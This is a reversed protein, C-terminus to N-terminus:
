LETILCIRVAYPCRPWHPICLLVPHMQTIHVGISFVRGSKNQATRHFCHDWLLSFGRELVLILSFSPKCCCSVVLLKIKSYSRHGICSFRYTRTSSTTDTLTEVGFDSWPYPIFKAHAFSMLHCWISPPSWSREKVAKLM